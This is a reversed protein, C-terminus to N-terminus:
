GTRQWWGGDCCVLGESELRILATTVQGPDLGTALCLGALSQSEWGIADLVAAPDGSPTRQSGAGSDPGGAEGSEVAMGVAALVDGVDCVPACGEAILRNTGLSAPSRIPGPVSMVPRGREVASDVTYMSGGRSASEVVVVVDALAAVIRNRSPFRWAAPSTGLPCESLLFGGEGLRRWLDGSSRPYIRDLGSGVVGIVRGGAGFAARQATADIGSALGSVVGVGARALGEGLEAAVSRGYSTCRRTGVIAVCPGAAIDPIGRAYLLMPPEPDGVLRQPWASDAPTMIRVGQECHDALTAAPDMGRAQDAWKTLLDANVGPCRRLPDEPRISNALIAEWAEATPRGELLASARVPGMDALTSIAVLLGLEGATPAPTSSLRPNGSGRM